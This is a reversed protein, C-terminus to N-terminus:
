IIKALFESNAFYVLFLIIVAVVLMSGLYTFFSGWEGKERAQKLSQLLGGGSSFVFYVFLLALIVGAITTIATKIYLWIDSSSTAAGITPPAPLAIAEAVGCLCLCLLLLFVKM